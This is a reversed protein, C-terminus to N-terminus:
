FNFGLMVLVLRLGCVLDNLICLVFNITAMLINTLWKLFGTVFPNFLIAEWWEVKNDWDFTTIATIIKRFCDVPNVFPIASANSLQAMFDYDGLNFVFGVLAVCVVFTAILLLIKKM